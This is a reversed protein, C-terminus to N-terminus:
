HNHTQKKVEKATHSSQQISNLITRKDLKFKPINANTQESGPKRDSNTDKNTDQNQLLALQETLINPHQQCWAAIAISIQEVDDPIPSILKELEAFNEQSFLSPQTKLLEVFAALNQGAFSM